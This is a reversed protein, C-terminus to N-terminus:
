GLILPGMYRPIYTYARVGDLQEPNDFKYKKYDEFQHGSM